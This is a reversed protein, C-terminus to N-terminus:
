LRCERSRASVVLPSSKPRPQYSAVRDGPHKMVRAAARHAVKEPLILWAFIPPPRM